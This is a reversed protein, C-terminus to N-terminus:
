AGSGEDPAGEEVPEYTKVFVGYRIPYAHGEVDRALFDGEDVRVVGHGPTPSTIGYYGGSSGQLQHIQVDPWSKRIEEFNDPVFQVAEVEIPKKRYLKAM